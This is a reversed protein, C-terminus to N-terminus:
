DEIAVRVVGPVSRQDLRQKVSAADDSAELDVEVVVKQTEKGTETKGTALDL